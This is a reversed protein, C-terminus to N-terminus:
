IRVGRALLRAHARQQFRQQDHPDRSIQCSEIKFPKDVASLEHRTTGTVTETSTQPDLRFRPGLREAIELGSRAGLEAVFDADETSRPIAYHNTSFSGVLMFPIGLAKLAEVVAITAEEGTM